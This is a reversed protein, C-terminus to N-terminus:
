VKDGYRQKYDEIILPLMEDISTKAEWDLLKETRSTDPIRYGTDEYGPGYFDSSSVYETVLGPELEIIRKALGKISLENDPNGINFIESKSVRPQGIIRLVADVFDDVYCWCRRAIGGDVLQLPLGRLMSNM